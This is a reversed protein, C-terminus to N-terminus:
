IAKRVSPSLFDGRAGRAHPPGIKGGVVLVAEDEPLKALVQALRLVRENDALDGLEDAWRYLRESEEDNDAGAAQARLYRAILNLNLM